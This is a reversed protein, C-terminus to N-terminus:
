CNALESINTVQLIKNRNQLMNFNLINAHAHLIHLQM